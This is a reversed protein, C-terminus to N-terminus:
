FHPDLGQTNFQLWSFTELQNMGRTPILVEIGAAVLGCELVPKYYERGAHILVQSASYRLIHRLANQQFSKRRTMSKGRIWDEYPDLMVTPEIIGHLSSLILWRDCTQETHLRRLKFTRSRYLDQAPARFRGKTVCCSVIGLKM